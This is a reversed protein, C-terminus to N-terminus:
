IILYSMELLASAKVGCRYARNISAIFGDFETPVIASDGHFCQYEANKVITEVGAIKESALAEEFTEVVEMQKTVSCRTQIYKMNFPKRELSQNTGLSQGGDPVMLFYYDSHRLVTSQVPTKKVTNMVKYDEKLQSVVSVVELELNEPILARGGTFHASDTGYGAVLAKQLENVERTTMEGSSTSDFFGM